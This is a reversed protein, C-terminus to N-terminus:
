KKTADIKSKDSGLYEGIAFALDALQSGGAASHMDHIAVVDKRYGAFKGDKDRMFAYLNTNGQSYGVLIVKASTPWPDRVVQSSM